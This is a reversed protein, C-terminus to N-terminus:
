MAVKARLPSAVDGVTGARQADPYLAIDFLLRRPGLLLNLLATFYQSASIM